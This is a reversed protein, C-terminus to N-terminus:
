TPATRQRRLPHRALDRGLRRLGGLRAGAAAHDARPLRHGRDGLRQEHGPRDHGGRPHRARVRRQPAQRAGRLRLGERVDLPAPRPRAPLPRPARLGGRQGAGGGARRTRRARRAPDRDGLGGGHRDRLPRPLEVAQRPGPRQAASLAHARYNPVAYAVNPDDRLEAVTERVSEGDEIALQESGGPLARETDTGAVQELRERTSAATGARYKVIVEGPVYSAAQAAAPLRAAALALAAALLLRIPM